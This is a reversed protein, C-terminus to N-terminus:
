TRAEKKKLWALVLGLVVAGAAILALVSVIKQLLDNKDAYPAIASVVQQAAVPISAAAGAAMTILTASKQVPTPDIATAPTAIARTVSSPPEDPSSGLENTSWLKVEDARRNVLGQLKKGGANVFRMLEIPIQDFQRARLRKWITWSPNAGVNFVFSLLAAYQCTSLEDVVGGIREALLAAAHALDQALRSKADALDITMGETVGDTSGFGITWPKGGTAPDPYATLKCAEHAAIFSVAAAPISRM